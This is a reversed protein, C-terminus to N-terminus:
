CVRSQGGALCTYNSGNVNPLPVFFLQRAVPQSLHSSDFGNHCRLPSNELVAHKLCTEFFLLCHVWVCLLTILSIFLTKNKTSGQSPSCGFVDGIQNYHRPLTFSWLSRSLGRTRHPLFDGTHTVAASTSTVGSQWTTDRPGAPARQVTPWKVDSDARDISRQSWTM